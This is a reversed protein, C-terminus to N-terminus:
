ELEIPNYPIKKHRDKINVSRMLLYGREKHRDNPSRLAEIEKDNDDRLIIHVGMALFADVHNDYFRKQAKMYDKRTCDTYNKKRMIIPEKKQVFKEIGICEYVYHGRSDSAKMILGPLGCLKWPGADIPIEMTFWVEWDRGRFHTTAKLCLYSLITCTDTSFQWQLKEIPEQYRYTSFGTIPEIVTREKTAHFTYIQGGEGQVDAPFNLAVAYKGKDSDATLASDGLYTYHSYFHNTEDGILLIKRDKLIQKPNLSDPMYDLSYVIRLKASDLVTGKGIYESHSYQSLFQSNAKKSPTVFFAVVLLTLLVVYFKM